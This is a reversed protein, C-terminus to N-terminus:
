NGAARDAATEQQVIAAAANAELVWSSAASITTEDEFWLLGFNTICEPFDPKIVVYGPIMGGPIFSNDWRNNSYTKLKSATGIAAIYSVSSVPHTGLLYNAARLTYEPGVVDPFAEHLFYMEVGFQAVQESGGWNPRPPPVGFPTADLERNLRPIYAQLAAKFRARYDAGLYPLVRVAEWGGFGMRQMMAPFLQEVRKKYPEAGNTAITLELAAGWEQM